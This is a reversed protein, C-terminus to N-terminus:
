SHASGWFTLRFTKGKCVDQNVDPLNLLTIVPARPASTLVVSAGAAVVIPNAATANSQVLEINTATTCGAPTSDTPLIVRLATVYITMVNPNSITLRITQEAGPVLNTINGAIGFEVASVILNMSPNPSPSPTGEVGGVSETGSPKATPSATPEGSASSDSSSGATPTEVVVVTIPTPNAPHSQLMSVSLGGLGFSVPLLLLLLLLPWNRRRKEKRQVPAYSGGAVPSM